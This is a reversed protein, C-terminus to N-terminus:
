DLESDELIVAAKKEVWSMINYVQHNNAVNPSPVCIVAKGLLALESLTLAGARCVVIDAIEYALHMNAIFDYIKIIGPNDIKSLVREIEQFYISGTQLIYQVDGGM